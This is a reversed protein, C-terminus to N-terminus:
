LRAVCLSYIEFQVSQGRFLLFRQHLHSIVLRRLASYVVTSRPYRTQRGLRQTVKRVKSYADRIKGHRNRNLSSWSSGSFRYVLIVTNGLCWDGFIEQLKQPYDWQEVGNHNYCYRLASRTTKLCQIDQSALPEEWTVRSEFLRCAWNVELRWSIAVFIGFYQGDM